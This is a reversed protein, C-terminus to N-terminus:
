LFVHAFFLFECVGESASVPSQWESLGPLMRIEKNKQLMGSGTLFISSWGNEIGILPIGGYLKHPKM